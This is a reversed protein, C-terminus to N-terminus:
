PLLLTCYTGSTTLNAAVISGRGCSTLTQEMAWTLRVTPCGMVACYYTIGEIPYTGALVTVPDGGISYTGTTMVINIEPFLTLEPIFELLANNLYDDTYADSDFGCTDGPYIGICHKYNPGSGTYANYYTDYESLYLEMATTIQHVVQLRNTDRAKVRAENLSGLVVSALLSIISIVVLLEILTFARTKMGNSIPFWM